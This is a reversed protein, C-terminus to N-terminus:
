IGLEIVDGDITVNFTYDGNRGSDTIPRPLSVFDVGDVGSIKTQIIQPAFREDRLLPSTFDLGAEPFVCSEEPFLSLCTVVNQAVEDCGNHILLEADSLFNFDEDLAFTSM